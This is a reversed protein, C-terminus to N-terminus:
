NKEFELWVDMEDGDVRIKKFSKEDQIEVIYVTRGNAMDVQNVFGISSNYYVRKIKDYVGKDLKGADYGSVSAIWQGHPSYFARYLINNMFFRCVLSQDHLVSWEAGVAERYDRKFNKMAKANTNKMTGDYLKAPLFTKGNSSGLPSNIALQARGGLFTFSLLIATVVLTINSKKM